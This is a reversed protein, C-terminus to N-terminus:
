RLITIPVDPYIETWKFGECTLFSYRRVVYAGPLLKKPLPLLESFDYEGAARIANLYIPYSFVFDVDVKVKPDPTKSFRFLRLQNEIRECPREFKARYHVYLNDDPRFENSPIDDGQHAYPASVPTVMRFSSHYFDNLDRFAISFLVFLVAILIGAHLATLRITTKM